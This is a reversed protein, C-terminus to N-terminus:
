GVQGSFVLHLSFHPKMIELLHVHISIGGYFYGLICDFGLVIPQDGLNQFQLGGPRMIWIPGGGNIPEGLDSNSTCSSPLAIGNDSFKDFGSFEPHAGKVSGWACV